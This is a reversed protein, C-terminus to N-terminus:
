NLLEFIESIFYFYAISLQNKTNEKLIMFSKM